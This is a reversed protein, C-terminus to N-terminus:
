PLPINLLRDFVVAVLAVAVCTTLLIRLPKREGLIVNAIAAFVATAILYGTYDMVVTYAITAVLMGLHRYTFGSADDRQVAEDAIEEQPTDGDDKTVFQGPGRTVLLVLMLVVLALMIVLILLPWTRPGILTTVEAGGPLQLALWLFLLGALASAAVFSYLRATM